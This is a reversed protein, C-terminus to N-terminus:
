LHDPASNFIGSNALRYAMAQRSVKFSDALVDLSDGEGLDFDRRSIEQEILRVPMLLSAAFANAELEREYEGESSREDRFFVKSYGRDIFLDSEDRHLVLHGVEHAITFRQRTVPHLANFGITPCGEKITLLGSVEDKFKSPRVKAGLNEAVKRISVPPSKVGFKQLKSRSRKEIEAVRSDWWESGM